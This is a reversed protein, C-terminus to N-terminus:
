ALKEGLGKTYDDGTVWGAKAGFALLNEETFPGVLIEAIAPAKVEAIEMWMKVQEFISPEAPADDEPEDWEDAPDPSVTMERMTDMADTLWTIYSDMDTFGNEEAHAKINGANIAVGGIAERVEEVTYEYKKMLQGFQKHNYWERPLEAEPAPRNPRPAPTSSVERSEVDLVAGESQVVPVEADTNLGSFLEAFEEKGHQTRAVKRIMLGAMTNWNNPGRTKGSRNKPWIPEGTDTFGEPVTAKTWEALSVELRTPESRDTRKIESWGGVVVHWPFVVSNAERYIPEEQSPDLEKTEPDCWAVIIGSKWYELEPMKNIRAYVYDKGVVPTPRGGYSVLYIDGKYPDAGLRICQRIFMAVATDSYWKTDLNLYQRIEQMTTEVMSQGSLPTIQVPENNIITALGTETTM